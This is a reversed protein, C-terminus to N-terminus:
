SLRASGLNYQRVLFEKLVAWDNDAFFHFYDNVLANTLFRPRESEAALLYDCFWQLATYEGGFKERPILGAYQKRALQITTKEKKDLGEYLLRATNRAPETPRSGGIHILSKRSNVQIRDVSPSNV